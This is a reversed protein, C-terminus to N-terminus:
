CIYQPNLKVMLERASGPRTYSIIPLCDSNIITHTSEQICVSIKFALSEYKYIQDFSSINEFLDSIIKSPMADFFIMWPFIFFQHKSVIRTRFWHIGPGYQLISGITKEVKLRGSIYNCIRNNCSEEGFCMFRLIM